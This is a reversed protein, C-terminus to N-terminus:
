EAGKPVMAKLADCRAAAADGDDGGCSQAATPLTLQFASSAASNWALMM